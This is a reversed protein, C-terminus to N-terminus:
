QVQGQAVRERGDRNRDIKLKGVLTDISLRDDKHILVRISCLFIRIYM